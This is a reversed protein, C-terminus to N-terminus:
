STNTPMHSPNWPNNGDYYYTLVEEVCVKGRKIEVQAQQSLFEFNTNARVWRMSLTLIIRLWIRSKNWVKFRDQTNTSGTINWSKRGRGEIDSGLCAQTYEKRALTQKDTSPVLLFHSDQAYWTDDRPRSKLAGKAVQSWRRKGDALGAAVTHTQEGADSEVCVKWGLTNAGEQGGGGQHQLRRTKRETQNITADPETCANGRIWGSECWMTCRGHKDFLGLVLPIPSSIILDSHARALPSLACWRCNIRVYTANYRCAHIRANKCADRVVWTMRECQM